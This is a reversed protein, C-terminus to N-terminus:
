AKKSKMEMLSAMKAKIGAGARERLSMPGRGKHEGKPMMGKLIEMHMDPDLEERQDKPVEGHEKALLDMKARDDMHGVDGQEPNPQDEEDRMNKAEMDAKKMDLSPANGAIEDGKKEDDGMHKDM